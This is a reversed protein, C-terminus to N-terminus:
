YFFLSMEKFAWSQCQFPHLGASDTDIEMCRLVDNTGLTNASGHPGM